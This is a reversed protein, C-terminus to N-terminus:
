EMAGGEIEKEGGRLKQWILRFFFDEMDSPNKWDEKETIKVRVNWVNGSKKGECVLLKILTLEIIHFKGNSRWDFNNMLEQGPNSFGKM